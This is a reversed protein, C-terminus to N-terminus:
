LDIIIMIFNKIIYILEKPLICKKDVWVFFSMFGPCKGFIFHKVSKNYFPKDRLIQLQQDNKENYFLVGFKRNFYVQNLQVVANVNTSIQKLASDNFTSFEQYNKAYINKISDSINRSQPYEIPLLNLIVIKTNECVKAYVGKIKIKINSNTYEEIEYPKISCNSLICIHGQELKTRLEQQKDRHASQLKNRSYNEVNNGGTRMNDNAEIISVIPKSNLQMEDKFLPLIIQANEKIHNALSTKGSGPLGRIIILLGKDKKALITPQRTYTDFPCDM